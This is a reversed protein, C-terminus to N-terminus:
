QGDKDFEGISGNSDFLCHVDFERVHEIRASPDAGAFLGSLNATDRWLCWHINDSITLAAADLDPFGTIQELVGSTYTFVHNDPILLTHNSFDTELGAFTASKPLVKYGLLWNPMETAHQQVWHIHPKIISGEKWAHKLQHNFSVTEAVNFRANTAFTVTGNYFNYGLRGSGTDINRGTLPFKDDDWQGNFTEPVRHDKPLRRNTM